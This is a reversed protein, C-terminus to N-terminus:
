RNAAAKIAEMQNTIFDSTGRLQSVLTDMAAFQKTYREELSEMRAVIKLRADSIDDISDQLRNERLQLMGSTSNLYNDISVRLLDALGTTDTNDTLNSTTTAGAFLAKVDQSNQSLASQFKTSSLSLLGDRDSSVGMDSLNSFTNGAQEVVGTTISRLASQIRRATSDGALVGDDSRYDMLQSLTTQYTNYADVFAQVKAEAGVIDARVTVSQESTTVGKLTFDLGDVLGAITNSSNTLTLGNLSFSADKSSRTETLNSFGASMNYALQSLNNADVDDGDDDDTFISITTAAGSDDATLLLRTQDGDVVLSATVEASSSNIADRIGSLTNNSSDITITVSKSVDETFGSYAGSSGSVYTPQGIKLTITGTGVVASASNFGGSALVQSAALTNVSIGYSGASPTGTQVVEVETPSDIVMSDFASGDSLPTLAADLSALVSSLTGLGSLEASLSDEQRNLSNTKPAVDADVLATVIAEVDLGAGVSGVTGITSM